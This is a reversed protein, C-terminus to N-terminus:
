IDGGAYERRRYEWNLWETYLWAFDDTPAGIDKPHVLSRYAKTAHWMEGITDGMLSFVESSALGRRLLSGVYSFYRDVEAVAHWQGNVLQIHENADPARLTRVEALALTMNAMHLQQHVLLSVSARQARGSAELERALVIVGVALALVSAALILVSAVM